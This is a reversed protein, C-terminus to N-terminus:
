GSDNRKERCDGSGSQIPYLDNHVHMDPFIRLLQLM